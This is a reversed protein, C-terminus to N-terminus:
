NRRWEHELVGMEIMNWYKDRYRAADRHLGERQFGTKEYCRIASENFDFVGLSIRHMHLQEFGIKLAAQMLKEGIGKGREASSGVLVRGIRASRNNREIAGLSLHGVARGTGTDVAKFILKDSIGIDNSGVIYKELQEVTLPYQFSWGAWQMLFAEDGSWEILQDFDSREFFMLEIM